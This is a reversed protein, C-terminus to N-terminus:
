SGTAMPLSPDNAWESLSNDYVAVNQHGMLTLLYATASAAIGGGCYAIIRQDKSAGVSDFAQSIKAMDIFAGTEPDLLSATPVCVSEAIRGPRGYHTGGSGTHQEVSLANVISAQPDGIHQSVDARDVMLQPRPRATFSTAPYSNAGNELARGELQWKTLGGNLVAANDHGFCRLLWWVRTAWQVSTQSYLIVRSQADIGLRGAAASFSAADQIAFRYRNDADSFDAQLDIFGAGPIHGAQYEAIAAEARYTTKPDPRLFTTCDFIRLSPDDLHDALWATEVLWEPDVIETTM